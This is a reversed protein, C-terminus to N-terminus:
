CRASLILGTQWQLWVLIKTKLWDTTRVSPRYVDAYFRANKCQFFHGEYYSLM